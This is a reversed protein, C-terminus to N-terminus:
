PVDEHVVVVDSIKIREKDTGNNARHTERLSTIEEM